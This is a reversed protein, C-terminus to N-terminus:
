SSPYRCNMKALSQPLLWERCRGQEYGHRLRFGLWLFCLLRLRHLWLGDAAVEHSVRCHKTRFERTWLSSWRKQQTNRQRRGDSKRNRYGKRRRHSCAYSRTQSNSPQSSQKIQHSHSPQAQAQSHMEAQKIGSEITQYLERTSLICHYKMSLFTKVIL